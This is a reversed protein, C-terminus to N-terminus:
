APTAQRRRPHLRLSASFRAEHEALEESAGAIAMRVHGLEVAILDCEAQLDICRRVMFVVGNGRRQLASSERHWTELEAQLSDLAATMSLQQARFRDLMRRLDMAQEGPDLAKWM